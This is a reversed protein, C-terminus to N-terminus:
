AAFNEYASLFETLGRQGATTKPLDRLMALEEDTLRRHLSKVCGEVAQWGSWTQLSAVLLRREGVILCPGDLRVLDNKETTGEVSEKVEEM